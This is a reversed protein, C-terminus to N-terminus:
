FSFLVMNSITIKINYKWTVLARVVRLVLRKVIIDRDQSLIFCTGAQKITLKWNPGLTQIFDYLVM